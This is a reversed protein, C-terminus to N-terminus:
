GKAILNIENLLQDKYSKGIPFNKIKGGVNLDLTNERIAHISSKNVIFSRHVRYFLKYPLQNEIGKMTFHITFRERNTNLIVYNELAEIFIIDKLKLKILASGNKIYIENDESNRVEKKSYYKAAKDVAKYFRSYTVPKLLYDVIDFDFAKMANQGGESVLIINPKYDLSSIFEFCDTKLTELDIFVLDIDKRKILEEKVLGPDSFSGVMTLSSTKEVFKNLFGSSEKDAVIICNVM